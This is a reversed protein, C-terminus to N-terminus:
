RLIKLRPKESRGFSLSLYAGMNIIFDKVDNKEFPDDADIGLYETDTFVIGGYFGWYLNKAINVEHRVGAEFVTFKDDYDGAFETYSDLDRSGAGNINLRPDHEGIGLGMYGFTYEKNEISSTLSLDSQLNLLLYIMTISIENRFKSSQNTLEFKSEVSIRGDFRSVRVGFRPTAFVNIGLETGLVPGPNSDGISTLLLGLKGGGDLTLQPYDDRTSVKEFDKQLWRKFVEERIYDMRLAIVKGEDQKNETIMGVIGKANTVMGGSMNIKVTATLEMDTRSLYQIDIDQDRPHVDWRWDHGMLTVSENGKPTVTEVGQFWEFGPSIPARILAFDDRDHKVIFEAKISEDARYTTVTIKDVPPENRSDLDLIVHKPTVIYLYESDEYLVVGFGRKDGGFKPSARIKVMYPFLAQQESFSLAALSQAPFSLLGIAPILSIILFPLYRARIQSM